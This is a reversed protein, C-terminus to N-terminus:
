LGLLEIVRNAPTPINIMDGLKVDSETPTRNFWAIVWWLRADNYYDFALKYFRDGTTWVHSIVSLSSIQDATLHNMKPTFYQELRKIGREKFLKDYEPSDNVGIRTTNYRSTM